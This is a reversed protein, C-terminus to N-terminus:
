SAILNQNQMAVYITHRKVEGTTDEVVRTGLVEVPRYMVLNNEIIFETAVSDYDYPHLMIIDNETLGNELIYEQVMEYNIATRM